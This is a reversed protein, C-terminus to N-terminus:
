TTRCPPAAPPTGLREAAQRPLDWSAGHHALYGAATGHQGAIWDLARRLAPVSATNMADFFAPDKGKALWSSRRRAVLPAVAEAVLAHQALVAARSWGALGLALAVVLGTRDRGTRCHVLVAGGRPAVAFAVAEALAPGNTRVHRLYLDALSACWAQHPRSAEDGIPVRRYDVGPVERLHQPLKGAEHDSRLDLVATMGHHRLRVIDTDDFPASFGGRLLRGPRPGQDEGVDHVLHLPGLEIARM